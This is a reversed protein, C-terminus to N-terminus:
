ELVKEDSGLTSFGNVNIVLIAGHRMRTTFCTVFNFMSLRMEHEMEERLNAECCGIRLYWGKEKAEYVCVHVEYLNHFLRRLNTINVVQLLKTVVAFRCYLM